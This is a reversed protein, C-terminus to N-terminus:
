RFRGDTTAYGFDLLESSITIELDYKVTQVTMSMRTLCVDMTSNSDSIEVPWYQNVSAASAKHTELNELFQVTSLLRGICSSGLDFLEFM